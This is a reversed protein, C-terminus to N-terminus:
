WCTLSQPVGQGGRKLTINCCGHRGRQEGHARQSPHHEDCVPLSSPDRISRLLAVFSFVAFQARSGYIPSRMEDQRKEVAPLRALERQVDLM